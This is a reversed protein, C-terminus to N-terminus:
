RFAICPLNSKRPLYRHVKTLAQSLMTVRFNPSRETAFVVSRNDMRIRLDFGKLRPVGRELFEQGIKRLTQLFLNAEELLESSAIGITKDPSTTDQDNFRM